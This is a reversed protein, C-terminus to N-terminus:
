LNKTVKAVHLTANNHELTVGKRKVLLPQKEVLVTQLCRLQQCYISAITTKNDGLPEYYGNGWMDWLVSLLIKKPHLGSQLQQISRSYCSFWLRKRKVNNYLNWNEDGTIIRDVVPSTWFFAILCSNVNQKHNNGSWDQPIRRPSTLLGQQKMISSNLCYWIRNKSSTYMQTM